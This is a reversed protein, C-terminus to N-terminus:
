FRERQGCIHSTAGSDLIWSKTRSTAAFGTFESATEENTQAINAGENTRKNHGKRKPKKEPHLIWYKEAKHGLKGYYSCEDGHSYSNAGNNHGKHGGQNGQNGRQTQAPIAM